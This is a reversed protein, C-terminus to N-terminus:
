FSYGIKGGIMSFDATKESDPILNDNEAYALGPKFFGVFIQLKLHRDMEWGWTIDLEDGIVDVWDGGQNLVSADRQFYYYTFDLGMKNNKLRYSAEISYYNLNGISHGRGIGNDGNFYILADGYFGKQIEHYTRSDKQWPKLISKEKEDGSSYLVKAKARWDDGIQYSSEFQYILGSANKDGLSVVNSLNQTGTHYQRQSSLSVFTFDMEFHYYNWGFLLGAYETKNNDFFVREGGTTMHFDSNNGTTSGSVALPIDTGHYFVRFIEINMSSEQRKGKKDWPDPIEVGSQYIPYDLQGWYLSDDSRQSLRAGGIYYCWTGIRCTQTLGNAYGEYIMGSRDALNIKQRGLRIVANPNPNYELFMEKFYVQAQIDTSLDGMEAPNRTQYGSQPDNTVISANSLNANVSFKSHLNSRVKLEIEQHIPGGKSRGMLGDRWSSFEAWYNGHITAGLPLSVKERLDRLAEYDTKKEIEKYDGEKLPTFNQQAKGEPTLTLLCTGFLFFVGMLRIFAGMKLHSKRPLRDM